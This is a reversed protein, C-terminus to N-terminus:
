LSCNRPVQHFPANYDVVIKHSEVDVEAYQGTRRDKQQRQVTAVENPYHATSLFHVAKSDKWALAM